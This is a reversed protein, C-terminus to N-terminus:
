SCSLAVVVIVTFKTISTVVVIIVRIAMAPTLLINVIIYWTSSTHGRGDNNETAKIVSQLKPTLVELM